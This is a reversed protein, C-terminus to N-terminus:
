LLKILRLVFFLLAGLLAVLIYPLANSFGIAAKMLRRDNAHPFPHAPVPVQLFACV